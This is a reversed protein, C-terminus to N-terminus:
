LRLSRSPVTVLSATETLRTETRVRRSEANRTSHTCTIRASDKRLRKHPLLHWPRRKLERRLAQRVLWYVIIAPIILLAVIVILMNLTAALAM